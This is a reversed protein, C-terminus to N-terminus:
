KTLLMKKTELFTGAKLQYYYVGSSFSSANWQVSYKGSLLIENVLTTIRRGLIDYIILETRVASEAHHPSLSFHITTAPNFPNPFNQSLSFSGPVFGSSSVSLPPYYIFLYSDLATLPKMVKIRFIDGSVPNSATENGTMQVHWTLLPQKLSDEEVLYLEDNRSLIGNGDIEVFVFKAKKKLTTNWVTFPVPQATTGFLAFSTDIVANSVRIEYDSPFPVATVTGSELVVDILKIEGNLTSSGVIWRSEETNVIPVPYDQILLRFGNFLPGETKGDLEVADKVVEVSDMRFVSYSKKGGNEKFRIMYHASNLSDINMGVAAFSADSTGTRHEFAANNLKIRKNYLVLDPLVSKTMLTGDDGSIRLHVNPSNAYNRTYFLYNGTNPIASALKTWTTGDDYSIDLGITVADNDPDAAYWQLNFNGAITDRSQLNVFEIDPAGNGPNNVTFTGSTASGFLSDGASLAKIKYRTGDPLPVTNWSVSSDNGQTSLFVTWHKGNDKSYFLHTNVTNPVLTRSWALNVFGSVSQGSLPSTLSLALSNPASQMKSWHLPLTVAMHWDAYYWNHQANPNLGYSPLANFIGKANLISFTTMNNNHNNGGVSATHYLLQMQKMNYILQSSATSFKTNDFLSLTGDYSGVSIFFQPASALLNTVILGGLSFGDMSRHWRSPITRFNADVYPLLDNVLYLYENQSAPAGLGPMILIMKGVKNKAFLSDYVTKINGRRSNDESPDAWEDVAGRFLYVVPYRDSEEDYGDPLMINFNKNQALTSSFHSKLEIRSPQAAAQLVLFVSLLFAACLRPTM